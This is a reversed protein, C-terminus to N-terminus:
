HSANRNGMTRWLTPDIGSDIFSVHGDGWAINVGGRHMSTSSYVGLNVGGRNLCSLRNPPLAHNYGTASLNGDVWPRGRRNPNASAYGNSAEWEGAECAACLEDLKGPIFVERTSWLTRQRQYMGDGSLIEGVMATQSLGKTIAAFTIMGSLQPEGSHRQFFGDARFSVMQETGSNLGYSTAAVAPGITVAGSPVSYNAGDAPCAFVSPMGLPVIKSSFADGGRARIDRLSEYLAEEALYPLISVHPGYSDGSVRPPIFHHSDHYGQVGLAIQRMNSVCSTSRSASRASAIAPLSIGILIACVAVAVVVEILTLARRARLPFHNPIRFM